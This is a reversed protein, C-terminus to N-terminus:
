LANRMMSPYRVQPLSQIRRISAAIHTLLAHSPFKNIDPLEFTTDTELLMVDAISPLRSSDVVLLTALCMRRHEADHLPDLTGSSATMSSMLEHVLANAILPMSVPEEQLLPALYLLSKVIAVKKQLAAADQQAQTHRKQWDPQRETGSM